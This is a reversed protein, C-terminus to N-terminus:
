QKWNNTSSSTWALYNQTHQAVRYDYYGNSLSTARQTVFGMHDWDGDDEFDAAIFDGAQINASFQANSTTNYTVGMYKAFTDAVTWSLSHSHSKPWGSSVTHWWGYLNSSYVEQPVGGAELIQSTFNACDGNIFFYYDTYNAFQAYAEAYAIGDDVDFGNIVSRDILLNYSFFRTDM